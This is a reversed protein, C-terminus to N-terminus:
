FTVLEFGGGVYAAIGAHGELEALLPLEAEVALEAVNREADGSSCGRAATACVGAILGAELAAQFLEGLRGQRQRLCRTAEGELIIRVQHGRRGLDLAYLLAHNIRCVEPSFILFLFKRSM